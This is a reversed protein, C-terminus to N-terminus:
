TVLQVQRDDVMTAAGGSALVVAGSLSCGAAVLYSTRYGGGNDHLWGLVLPGLATGLMM